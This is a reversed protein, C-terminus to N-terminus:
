HKDNVDHALPMDDLRANPSATNHYGRGGANGEADWGWGEAAPGGNEKKNCGPFSFM